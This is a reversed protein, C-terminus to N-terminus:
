EDIWPTKIPGCPAVHVIKEKVNLYVEGRVTNKCFEYLDILRIDPSSIDAACQMMGKTTRWQHNSNKASGETGANRAPSRYGSSISLRIERKYKITLGDRITQLVGMLFAAHLDLEDPLENPRYAVEYLSFNRSKANRVM